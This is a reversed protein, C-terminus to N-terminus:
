SCRKKDNGPKVRCDMRLTPEGHVVPDPGTTVFRICARNVAFGNGKLMAANAAVTQESSQVIIL